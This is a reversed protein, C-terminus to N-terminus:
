NLLFVGMGPVVAVMLMAATFRLRRQTRAIRDGLLSAATAWLALGALPLAVEVTRLEYTVILYAPFFAALVGWTVRSMIITTAMFWTVPSSAVRMLRAALNLHTQQERNHPVRTFLLLATAFLALSLALFSTRWSTAYAVPVALPIGVVSSVGPQMTLIAISM